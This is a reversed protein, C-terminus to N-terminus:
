YAPERPTHPSTAPGGPETLGTLQGAVDTMTERTTVLKGAVWTLCSEAGAPNEILLEWGVVRRAATVPRLRWGWEPAAETMRWLWRLEDPKGDLSPEGYPCLAATHEAPLQHPTGDKRLRLWCRVQSGTTIRWVTAGDAPLVVPM